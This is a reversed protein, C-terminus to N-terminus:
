EHFTYNVSPMRVFTVNNNWMSICDSREVRKQFRSFYIQRIAGQTNRHSMQNSLDPGGQKSQKRVYPFCVVIQM